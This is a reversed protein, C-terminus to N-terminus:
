QFFALTTVGLAKIGFSAASLQYVKGPDVAIVFRWLCRLNVQVRNCSTRVFADIENKRVQLGVPEVCDSSVLARIASDPAQLHDVPNNLNGWSTNSM